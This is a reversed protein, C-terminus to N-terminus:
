RSREHSQRTSFPFEQRAGVLLAGDKAVEVYGRLKM